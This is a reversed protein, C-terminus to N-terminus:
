PLCGCLPHLPLKRVETEVSPARMVASQTVKVREHAAVVRIVREVESQGKTGPRRMLLSVQPSDLGIDILKRLVTTRDVGELEALKAIKKLQKVDLRVPVVPKSGTRPRGRKRRRPM